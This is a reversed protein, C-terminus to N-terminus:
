ALPFIALCCTRRQTTKWQGGDPYIRSFSVFRHPDRRSTKGFPRRSPESGSNQSRTKVKDTAM